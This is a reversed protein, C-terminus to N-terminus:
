QAQVRMLNAHRFGRAYSALMYFSTLLRLQTRPNERRSLGKEIIFKMSKFLYTFLDHPM